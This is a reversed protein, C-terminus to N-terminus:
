FTGGITTCVVGSASAIHYWQMASRVYGGLDIVVTEGASVSWKGIDASVANSLTVTASSGGTNYYVLTKISGLVHLNSVINISTRTLPVAFAERAVARPVPPDYGASRDLLFGHLYAEDIGSGTYVLTIEAMHLVDPDLDRHTIVSGESGVVWSTSEALMELECMQVPVHEGDVGVTIVMSTNRLQYRLGFTRGRVPVFVRAGDGTVPCAMRFANASGDPNAAYGLYLSGAGTGSVTRVWGITPWPVAVLDGGAPAARIAGGESGDDYIGGIQPDITVVSM